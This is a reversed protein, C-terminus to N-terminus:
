VLLYQEERRRVEERLVYYALYHPMGKRGGPPLRAPRGKLVDCVSSRSPRRRKENRGTIPNYSDTGGKKSTTM